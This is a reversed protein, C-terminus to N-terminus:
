EAHQGALFAGDSPMYGLRQLEKYSLRTPGQLAALMKEPDGLVKGPAPDTQLQQGGGFSAASVRRAAQSNPDQEQEQEGEGETVGFVDAYEDAWKGVAAESVDEDQYLAAVKEPIGKAKLIEAVSSERRGARFQALESEMAKQRELAEELQKRLGGGSTGNENENDEAM